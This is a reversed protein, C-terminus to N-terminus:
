RTAALSGAPASRTSPMITSAWRRPPYTTAAQERIAARLDAAHGAARPFSRRGPSGRTHEPGSARRSAATSLGAAARDARRLTRGARPASPVVPLTIRRGIQTAATSSCDTSATSGARNCSDTQRAIDSAAVTARRVRRPSSRAIRRRAQWSCRGIHGSRRRPPARGPLRSTEALGIDVAVALSEDGIASASM